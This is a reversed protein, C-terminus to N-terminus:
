ILLSPQFPKELNDSKSINDFAWMPQLNKLSWAKKFDIDTPSQFNFAALPTKHDIHIEGNMFADWDMGEKFQKEIHAKLTDVTYGVLIEWHRNAKSSRLSRRIGQGVRDNIKGSPTSRLRRMRKRAYERSEEPHDERRKASKALSKDRNEWYWKRSDEKAKEKNKEYKAKQYIQASEIHDYYYEKSRQNIKDRNTAHWKQSAPKRCLKCESRRGDAHSKDLNFNSISKIEKCKSCRKESEAM